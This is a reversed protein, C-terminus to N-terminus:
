DKVSRGMFKEYPLLSIARSMGYVTLLVTLGPIMGGEGVVGAYRVALVLSPLFTLALAVALPIISIRSLSMALAGALILLLFLYCTAYLVVKLNKTRFISVERSSRLDDLFVNFVEKGHWLEKKFVQSLSQPPRLHLVTTEASSIMTYGKKGLRFCIDCDENTELEEDFGEVSFFAESPMIMNGSPLWEVESTVNRGAFLTDWCRAVWNADEPILMRFGVVTRPDADFSLFSKELWDVPVICDADLFALYDGKSVQSGFNRLSGITGKGKSVVMAGRAMAIDATGDKSGNDVVIIEVKRGATEMAKIADICRGICEAENRAPIVFSVASEKAAASDATM